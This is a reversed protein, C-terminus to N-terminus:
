SPRSRHSSFFAWLVRTADLAQSPPDAGLVRQGLSRGAAGPWQHGAADITILDVERGEACSTSDRHVPGDQSVVPAGCHSAERFAAITTAVSVWEGRTVGKTGQGGAYPVHEDALGHIALVSVPQPRSCALSFTGAVPGIAALRHEGACAYRYAMAAGNSMGTLYVRAPDVGEHAILTEILRDLFGTDDVQNRLAPGCCMGGANWSRHLGDPYAVLFGERDALEDWGYASQAQSGSGFGGHLMIVLPVATGAAVKSPRHLRYTRDINGVALHRVEAAPERAGAGAAPLWLLVSLLFGVARRM